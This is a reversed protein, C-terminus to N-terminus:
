SPRPTEPPLAEVDILARRDIKLMATTPLAGVLRLAEPLKFRALHDAAFRRLEDLNPPDDRNTPVVVAVGIDGMVADPRPVVAVQAVKPHWTLVHEIEAPFVVYGGRSWGDGRRGVLHLNGRDDVFGQDGTHLWGDRLTAATAEPDCWYGQMVAASRLCVEGVDGVGGDAGSAPAIRLDVGPRPRGITFLREDMTAAPSTFTGIGGSETCSYRQTWGAGFRSTAEEILGPAAPAGGCVVLRVASFDFDDFDPERLMLALQPAVGGVAPMRHTAVADLVSRARWPEIVHLTTGAALQAAVKAMFGVHCFQTNATIPGGEGWGNGRDIRGNAELQAATFAAAKPRGTTGSTFVVAVVRDPDPPLQPPTADAVRIQALLEHPEQAVGITTVDCDFCLGEALESTVLAHDARAVQSVLTTREPPALRPNVGAAIAGLKALAAYAVLYDPTSPLVLAVVHGPRVGRAVLGVAAEDSGRDLESTTLHWGGSAVMATRGPWRRAIETVVEGLAM